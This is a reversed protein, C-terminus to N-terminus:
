RGLLKSRVNRGTHIQKNKKIERKKKELIDKKQQNTRSSLSQGIVVICFAFAIKLEIRNFASARNQFFIITRKRRGTEIVRRHHFAYSLYITSYESTNKSFLAEFRQWSLFRPLLKHLYDNAKTSFM